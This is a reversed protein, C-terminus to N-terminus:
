YTDEIPPLVNELRIEILDDHKGFRHWEKKTTLYITIEPSYSVHKNTVTFSVETGSGKAISNTLGYLVYWDINYDSSNFSSDVEVWLKYEDGSRLQVTPGLNHKFYVDWSYSSDERVIDNGFCDKIRLFVPVNYDRGKGQMQYYLKFVEIFDNTYCICQEAEHYSITNGHSLKNRIVIVRQLIKRVENQGSYFPELIQKFFASYLDDRCFFYEIDEILIGDIKRPYRGPNDLMRKEIRRKVESKVLPQDDSIKYDFYEAGYHKKFVEDILRRSWNEFTDIHHRCIDRLEVESIGFFVSNVSKGGNFLNTHLRQESNKKQTIPIRLATKNMFFSKIM